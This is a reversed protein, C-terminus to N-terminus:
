HFYVLICYQNSTFGTGCSWLRVHVQEPWEHDVYALQQGPQSELYRSMVEGAVDLSSYIRHDFRALLLMPTRVRGPRENPSNVFPQFFFFFGFLVYVVIESM